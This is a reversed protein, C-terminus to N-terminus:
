YARVARVSYTTSVYEIIFENKYLNHLEGNIDDYMQDELHELESMTYSSVNYLGFRNYLCIHRTVSPYSSYSRTQPIYYLTDKTMENECIGINTDWYGPDDYSENCNGIIPTLDEKFHEYVNVNFNENYCVQAIYIETSDTDFCSYANKYEKYWPSLDPYKEDIHKFENLNQYDIIKNDVNKNYVNAFAINSVNKIKRNSRVNMTYVNGDQFHMLYTITREIEINQYPLNFEEEYDSTCSTFSIISFLVIVILNFFKKM